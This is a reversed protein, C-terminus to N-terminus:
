KISESFEPFNKPIKQHFPGEAGQSGLGLTELGDLTDPDRVGVFILSIDARDDLM